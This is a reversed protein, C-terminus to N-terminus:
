IPRVRRWRRVMRSCTLTTLVQLCALFVDYGDACLYIFKYSPSFLILSLQTNKGCWLSLLIIEISSSLFINMIWHFLFNRFM